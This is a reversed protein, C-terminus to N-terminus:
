TDCAGFMREGPRGCTNKDSKKYKREKKTILELVTFDFLILCSIIL